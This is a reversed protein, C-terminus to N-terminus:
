YDVFHGHPTFFYALLSFTAGRKSGTVEARMKSRTWGSEPASVIRPLGVPRLRSARQTPDDHIVLVFSVTHPVPEIDDSGRRASIVEDPVELGDSSERLIPHSATLAIHNTRPSAVWWANASLRPTPHSQACSRRNPFPRFSRNSEGGGRSRRGNWGHGM